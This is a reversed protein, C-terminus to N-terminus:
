KTNVLDPRSRTWKTHIHDIAAIIIALAALAFIGVILMRLVEPPMGTLKALQDVVFSLGTASGAWTSIKTLLGQKNAKVPDDNVAGGAVPAAPAADAPPAAVNVMSGAEANVTQTTPETTNVVSVSPGAAAPPQELSAAAPEGGGLVVSPSQPAALPTSDDDESLSQIARKARAWRELRDDLGNIGGNIRRTITEFQNKDALVNLGRTKWFWGAVRFMHEPERALEPHTEFDVGLAEGAEKHNARGTLHTIGNGRFRWGDGSEPPGNGLRNAYVRNAIKEPQHAYERAVAMTKFYKPFVARLREASYNMNEVLRTFDNSEHGMQALFARVRAVNDIDFEELAANLPALFADLSSPRRGLAPLAAALQARTLM